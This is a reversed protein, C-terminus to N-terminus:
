AHRRLRSAQGPGKAGSIGEDRYVAVIEYGSRAAIERLACEQSDTTQEDTSVRADSPQSDPSLEALMLLSLTAPRRQELFRGAHIPGDLGLRWEKFHWDWCELRYHDWCERVRDPSRWAIWAVAMPLTWWAERMPDFQLPDPTSALKELGLLSAQAEAEDPTLPAINEGHRGASGAAIPYSLARVKQFMQELIAVLTVVGLEAAIEQL